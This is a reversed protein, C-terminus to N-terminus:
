QVKEEESREMLDRARAMVDRSYNEDYAIVTMRRGCLAAGIVMWADDNIRDARTRM